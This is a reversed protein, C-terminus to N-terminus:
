QEVSILCKKKMYTVIVGGTDQGLNPMPRGPGAARNFFNLAEPKLGSWPTMCRRVVLSM